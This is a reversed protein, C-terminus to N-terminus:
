LMSVPEGTTFLYLYAESVDKGTGKLIAEKYLSIQVSYEHRIREVEADYDKGPHIFSSKYDILVIGDDQEFCCDIVGQALIAHGDRETRLTFPKEKKLTGIRAADAARRGVDSRFFETIRGLDLTKYVHQEVAGQEVLMEAMERIYAEDIRGDESVARAFDLFEMIRHYAIGKDSASARKISESAAWLNVVETDPRAVSVHEESEYGNDTEEASEARNEKELAERRLASVSYKAKSTLLDSDPYEYTFRRDLEDYLRKEGSTLEITDPDPIRRGSIDASKDSYDLPRVHYTNLGTRIVNRMVKLCNKPRITYKALDEESKCTGVLILKNRARTMAVYLLRLEEEYIDRHSKANIARQVITSRWYKRAPDIYPLGVGVESDFSFSKGNSDYRFGRNLNGIIVFPYELGKSKHITSIRIVDDGPGAAPTQGNSIGKDRMVDVFRIFSSLSAITDRSYRGARDALARLNAQRRAGGNMAGAMRYYGSDTLVTWVFDDLPMMRSLRRWELIKHVAYAAKDRLAGEPGEETYWKVAEWFAPRRGHIQKKEDSAKERKERLYGSFAIRVESLEEPTWGFAESHLSAILPVDRKMNDICSLLSVAIGVEVTDFYDDTDEVYPEIGRLRLARAMIDGRMSVARLLIVIDKAEAKRVVDNKTDYFETGILDYALGAIYEAEAELKSLKLVEDDEGDNEEDEELDEDTLVHVEPVFDYQPPCEIGTVLMAREDYGDMIETFVKNIYRITADNSRFNKGLDIALGAGSATDSFTKYAEEFISPEAQRFRYISQKIDGVRFVNDKRAVSSILAEQIRNTDQYEDVFIFKFRRRLTDAADPKRLIRVAGHEMDSFDLVRRDRKKETYRREFEELLRIFYITYRYTDNMESLRADFDPFAYRSNWGKLENKIADRLAKIEAKVPEYSEAETEDAQLRVGKAAATTEILEKDLIGADLSSMVSEIISLEPELRELMSELGAQLMLSRLEKEADAAHGFTEKADAFMLTQLQSGEFTEPTIRLLEAKEYAWEFYDPITRLGNYSSLLREKFTDEQREESYLRLFERFGIRDAEEESADESVGSSRSLFLDDEFGAEILEQLAERKMLESQVADCAGFDPEIDIEYFFERIVRMAFSDITTIYSRYLRSLQETLREADEPCERMKKRIGSALRLKMEAAAARTFTVVLMEDVNAKGELIIKLIREVLVATKGSGAAASVLVSRDLTRIAKKQEKTFEVAM